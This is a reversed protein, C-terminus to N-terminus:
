VVSKRDRAEGSSVAELTEELTDFRDIGPRLSMDGGAEDLQDDIEQARERLADATPVGRVVAVPVRGEDAPVALDELSSVDSREPVVLIPVDPSAGPPLFRPGVQTYADFPALLGPFLAVVIFGLVMVASIAVFWWDAGYWKRAMLLRRTFGVRALEEEWEQVDPTEVTREEIAM